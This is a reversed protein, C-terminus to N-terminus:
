NNQVKKDGSKQRRIRRAMKLIAMADEDSFDETAEALAAACKKIKSVTNM